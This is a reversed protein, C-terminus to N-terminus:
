FCSSSIQGPYTTGFVRFPAPTGNVTLTVTGDICSHAPTELRLILPQGM